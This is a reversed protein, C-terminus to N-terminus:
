EKHATIVPRHAEAGTHTAQMLHPSNQALQMTHQGLIRKPAAKAKPKNANAMVAATGGAAAVGASAIPHDGVFNAAETLPKGVVNAGEIASAEYNLATEKGGLMNEWMNGLVDGAGTWVGKIGNWLGEYANGINEFFSGAQKGFDDGKVDFLGNDAGDASILDVDGGPVLAGIAAAAAAIGTITLVGTAVKGWQIGQQQQAM